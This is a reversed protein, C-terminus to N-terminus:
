PPFAGAPLSIYVPALGGSLTFAHAYPVGVTGEELTDAPFVLPRCENEVVLNFTWEIIQPITCSDEIHFTLPFTGSETPTGELRALDDDFTIGAPLTGSVISRRVPYVGGSTDLWYTYPLGVVGRNLFQAPFSLEECGGIQVTVTAAVHRPPVCSDTITVALTHLGESGAPPTGSLRGNPNLELGTEPFPATVNFQFPPQGGTFQSTLETVYPLDVIAPPTGMEIALRPYPIDRPDSTTAILSGGSGRITWTDCDSIDFLQVATRDIRNSGNAATVFLMATYRGPPLIIGELTKHLLHPNVTARYQESHLPSPNRPVFSDFAPQYGPYIALTAFLETIESTSEAVSDFTVPGNSAFPSVTLMGSVDLQGDHVAIPSSDNPCSAGILLVWGLITCALLAVTRRAM